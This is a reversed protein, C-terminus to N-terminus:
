CALTIFERAITVFRLRKATFEKEHAELEVKNSAGRIVSIHDFLEEARKGPIDDDILMLMRVMASEAASGKEDAEVMAARWADDQDARRFWATIVARKVDTVAAVFDGFALIRDHRLQERRAVVETRLATRRQFLYTTFSGLLTGAVAIL